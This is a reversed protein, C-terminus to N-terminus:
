RCFIRELEARQAMVKDYGERITEDIAKIEFLNTNENKIEISYDAMKRSRRTADISYLDLARLIVHVVGDFGTKKDYAMTNFGVGLVKGVGMDRLVKVPLNDKSGGDVCNYETDGDFYPCTSFYGPFSMSARVAVELPAGTFYHLFENELGEDQTLFICEDTTLNDVTCVSLNIPLNSFGTIGKLEMAKKVFESIVAGDVLGDTKDTHFLYGLLRKAAKLKKLKAIMHLNEAVFDRMEDASMGMACFAAMVSGASTGSVYDPRIGMEYLAKIAGIHSVGQMGGGSFAFGIADKRASKDWKEM